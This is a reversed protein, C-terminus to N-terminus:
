GVRRVDLWVGLGMMEVEKSQRLDQRGLIGGLWSCYSWERGRTERGELGCEM